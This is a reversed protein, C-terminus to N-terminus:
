WNNQSRVETMLIKVFERKTLQQILNISFLSFQTFEFIFKIEMYYM